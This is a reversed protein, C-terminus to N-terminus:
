NIAIRKEIDSMLEDTLQVEDDTIRNIILADSVEITLDHVDGGEEQSELTQKSYPTLRYAVDIYLEVNYDSTEFYISDSYVTGKNSLLSYNIVEPLQNLLNKM